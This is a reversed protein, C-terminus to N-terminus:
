PVELEEEAPLYRAPPTHGPMPDAHYQYDDSTLFVKDPGASRVVAMYGKVAAESETLQEVKFLTGWADVRDKDSVHASWQSGYKLTAAIVEQMSCELDSGSAPMGAEELGAIPVQPPVAVQSDHQLQVILESARAPDVWCGFHLAYFWHGPTGELKEKFGARYWGRSIDGDDPGFSQASPNLASETAIWYGERDPPWQDVAWSYSGVPTVVNKYDGSLSVGNFALRTNFYESRTGALQVREGYFWGKDEITESWDAAFASMSLLLTGVFFCIRYM